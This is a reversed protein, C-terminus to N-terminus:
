RRRILLMGGLVLLSLSGPEPVTLVVGRFLNGANGTALTTFASAAGTDLVSVLKNDTSTAFLRTGSGDTVGALGFLGAGLGGTITYQKTWVGATRTWKQLGGGSAIARVDTFYLTDPDAFWFDWIDMEANVSTGAYLSLSQGASTPLGSGVTFVGQPSGTNTDLSQYMQGDSIRLVRAGNVLGATIVSASTSGFTTHVVAKNNVGGSVWINSGDMVANRVAFGTGMNFRTTTDIAGSMDMRAVVRDDGALTVNSGVGTDHCALTMYAGDTSLALFGQNNGSITCRQNGGTGDVTPMAFSQVLTGSTTYEEMFTAGANGNTSSVRVVVLNGNTIIAAPAHSALITAGLLASVLLFERRM